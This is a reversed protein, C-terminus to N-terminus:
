RLEVNGLLAASGSTLGPAPLRLSFGVAYRGGAKERLRHQMFSKLRNGRHQKEDRIEAYRSLISQFGASEVRRTKTATL